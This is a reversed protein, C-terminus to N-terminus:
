KRCICHLGPFLRGCQPLSYHEPVSLSCQDVCDPPRWWEIPHKDGNPTGTSLLHYRRRGSLSTSVSSMWDVSVARANDKLALGPNGAADRQTVIDRIRSRSIDVVKSIIQTAVLGKEEGNDCRTTFLLNPAYIWRYAPHLLPRTKTPSPRFHGRKSATVAIAGWKTFKTWPFSIVLHGTEILM